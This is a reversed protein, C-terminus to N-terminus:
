RLCVRGLITSDASSTKSSKDGGQAMLRWARDHADEEQDWLSPFSNLFQEQRERFRIRQLLRAMPAIDPDEEVQSLLTQVNPSNPGYQDLADSFESMRNAVEIARDLSM